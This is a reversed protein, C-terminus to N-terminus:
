QNKYHYSNESLLKNDADRVEKLRGFGDYSYTTKYGRADIAISVGVLPKYTYTSIMATAPLSARLLALKELLVIENNTDSANQAAIVLSQNIDAYPMNEIVAIPMSSNYGYIYSIPTGNEQKAEIPNSFMDYKLFQIRPELPNNRKSISITKPLYSQNASGWNTRSYTIDKTELLMDNRRSEIKKVVGIRNRNTIQDDYFYSNTLTEGLSNTVISKSIKKNIFNYEYRETTTVIKPTSSGEPYFFEKSVKESVTPWGFLERVTEGLSLFHDEANTPTRKYHLDAYLKFGLYYTCSPVMWADSPRMAHGVDIADDHMQGDPPYTYIKEVIPKYIHITDNVISESYHKENLLLGRKYDANPQPSFPPRINYDGPYDFPSTYIYESKGNGTESVTVNKYGVDSGQTRIYALSNHNVYTIYTATHVPDPNNTGGGTGIGGGEGNDQAPIADSYVNRSDGYLYIPKACALSGSSLLRNKISQYDYHKTKALDTSSDDTYYNINNIRIGGGMLWQNDPKTSSNASNVKKYIQVSANGGGGASGPPLKYGIYYKTQPQMVFSESAATGDNLGREGLANIPHITTDSDSRIYFHGGPIPSKPVFFMETPTTPSVPTVGYEGDEPVQPEFYIPPENDISFDTIETNGEYSYTNPGFDFVISGGTPLTMKQLVNTTCAEVDPERIGAKRLSFYGWYDKTPEGTSKQDKYSLYHTLQQGNNLINNEVVSELFMRNVTGLSLFTYNFNYKKVLDGYWSRVEMSNLYPADGTTININSDNRGQLTQFTIRGKNIVEITQIKKTQTSTTITSKTDAAPMGYITAGQNQNILKQVNGDGNLYSYSNHEISVVEPANTYTINVLKQGNNDWIETLNFASPYNLVPASVPGGDGLIGSMPLVALANIENTQEVAGFVYSYGKDDYVTFSKLDIEYRHKNFDYDKQTYTLEIKMANDNDLKVAVLKGTSFNRRIFFRGTHGMFNYQFIDHQTDFKGTQCVGWGYEGFEDPTLFPSVIKAAQNYRNVGAGGNPDPHDQLIGIRGTNGHESEEDPAGRVTRSISGGAFLSWGLGTYGAVEDVAIASPHYNLSIDMKIDKSLTELSYLPISINPIGTYNNVTIEEFRMLAAVTPSPPTVIPLQGVITPANPSQGFSAVLIFNCLLLFVGTKQLSTKMFFFNKM